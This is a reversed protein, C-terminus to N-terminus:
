DTYRPPDPDDAWDRDPSPVKTMWERVLEVHEREEAALTRAAERVSETTAIRALKTFFREAREEAALAVALAHWPQMLYHVDDHAPTEPGEPTSWAPETAPGDGTWRMEARIADAHKAEITAMRRFLAAVERNNHTEMVDALETYRQAAEIEIALAQAMLEPITAPASERTAPAGSTTQRANM